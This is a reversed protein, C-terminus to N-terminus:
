ILNCVWCTNIHNLFHKVHLSLHARMYYQLRLLLLCFKNNHILPLFYTVVLVLCSTIFVLNLFWQNLRVLFFFLALIFPPHSRCVYGNLYQSTSKCLQPHLPVFQYLHHHKQTCLHQVWIWTFFMTSSSMHKSNLGLDRSCM